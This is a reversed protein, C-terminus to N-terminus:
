RAVPLGFENRRADSLQVIPDFGRRTWYKGAADRFAIDPDYQIDGFPVIFEVERSEGPLLVVLGTSANLEGSNRKCSLSVRISSIIETSRNHVHVAVTRANETVTAYPMGEGCEAVIGPLPVLPRDPHQPKPAEAGGLIVPQGVGLIAYVLRAQAEDRVRVDDQYTRATLENSQAAAEAAARAHTNAVRNFRLARVAAIAAVVAIVATVWEAVSGFVMSDSIASWWKTTGSWWEAM